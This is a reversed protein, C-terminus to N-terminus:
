EGALLDVFSDIDFNNVRGDGNTDANLLRCTPHMEAYADPATIALVFPDIDFNNIQGDCNLDGAECSGYVYFEGVFRTERFDYMTSILTVYLDYTGAPLPGTEVIQSYPTLTDNCLQTEPYDHRLFLDVRTGEHEVGASNPVCTDFWIEHMTITARDGGSLCRPTMSMQPTEWPVWGAYAVAPVALAAVIIESIVKSFASM